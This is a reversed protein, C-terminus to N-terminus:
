FFVQTSGFGGGGHHIGGGTTTSSVLQANPKLVEEILQKNASSRKKQEHLRHHGDGGVAMGSVGAHLSGSPTAQLFTVKLGLKFSSFRVAQNLKQVWDFEYDYSHCM